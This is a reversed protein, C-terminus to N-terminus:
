FSFAFHMNGPAGGGGKFVKKISNKAVAIPLITSVKKHQLAKYFMNDGTQKKLEPLFADQELSSSECIVAFDKRSESTLM